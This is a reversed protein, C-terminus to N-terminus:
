RGDWRFSGPVATVTADVETYGPPPNAALNPEIVLQTHNKVLISGDGIWSGILKTDRDLVTPAGGMIHFLGHLESPATARTGVVVVIGFFNLGLAPVSVTGADFAVTVLSTTGGLVLLSPMASSPPEWYVKDKFELKATGQLEILLTARIISDDIKMTRGTPVLIYYIGSDSKAGYPNLGSAIITDKIDGANLNFYQIETALAKYRNFVETGPVRKNRAPQTVFGVISGTNTIAAAEVNGTINGANVLTGDCSIPGGSGALVRDKEVTIALESHLTTSLVALPQTGGPKGVLSFRRASLGVSAEGSLRVPQDPNNTMDNDLQDTQKWSLSGGGLAVPTNWADCGGTVRWNTDSNVTALALDVASSALVSAQLCNNDAAANRISIRSSVAVAFGIVTLLSGMGLVLLYVGGRRLHPAHPHTTRRHPMLNESEKSSM